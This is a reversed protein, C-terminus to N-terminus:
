LMSDVVYEVFCVVVCGDYLFVRLYWRKVCCVSSCNMCCEVGSCCSKWCVSEFVIAFVSMVSSLKIIFVIAGACM